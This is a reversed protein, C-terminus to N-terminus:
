TAPGAGEKKFQGRLRDLERAIRENDGRERQSRENNPGGGPIALPQSGSTPSSVPVALTPQGAGSGSTTTRSGIGRFPMPGAAGGTGATTTTTTTTTSPSGSLTGGGGAPFAAILGSSTGGGGGAGPLVQGSSRPLPHKRSGGGSYSGGAMGRGFPPPSQRPPPSRSIAGGQGPFAGHPSPPSFPGSPPPSRGPSRALPENFLAGQRWSREGGESTGSQQHPDDSRNRKGAQGSELLDLYGKLVEEM